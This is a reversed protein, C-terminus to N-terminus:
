TSIFSSFQIDKSQEPLTVLMVSEWWLHRVLIREGKVQDQLVVHASEVQWLFSFFMLEIAKMLRYRPHWEEPMALSMNESILFLCASIERSLSRCLSPEPSNWEASSCLKWVKVSLPWVNGNFKWLHGTLGAKWIFTFVQYAVCIWLISHSSSLCFSVQLHRTVVNVQSILTWNHRIYCRIHM